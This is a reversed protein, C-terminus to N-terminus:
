KWIIKGVWSKARAPDPLIIKPCFSKSIVRIIVQRAGRHGMRTEDTAVMGLNDTGGSEFGARV